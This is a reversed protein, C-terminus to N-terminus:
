LHRFARLDRGATATLGAFVTPVHENCIPMIVATRAEAAIPRGAVRAHSLGRVDGQRLVRYGMMATVFGAAVWAFLLTFLGVQVLQVLSPDALPQTQMLMLAALTASALVLGLLANRRKHAARQWGRARPERPGPAGAAAVDSRQFVTKVSNIFGRWPTPTMSGRVLAPAAGHTYRRLAASVLRAPAMSRASAHFNM